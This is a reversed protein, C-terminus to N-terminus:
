EAPEILGEEIIYAALKEGAIRHALENPHQDAPHVWLSSDERGLFGDLLSIVRINESKCFDEISHVIKRFPYSSELQFLIPYIAVAFEFGKRNALNNARKLSSKTLEWGPSDEKYGDHYYRVM